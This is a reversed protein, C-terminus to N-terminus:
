ARRLPAGPPHSASLRVPTRERALCRPCHEIALWGARPAITLRCRPCHLQLAQPATVADTRGAERRPM